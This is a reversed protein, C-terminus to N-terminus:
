SHATYRKDAEYKRLAKRNESSDMLRCLHHLPSYYSCRGSYNYEFKEIYEQIARLTITDDEHNMIPLQPFSPESGVSALSTETTEAMRQDCLADGGSTKTMKRIYSSCCNSNTAGTCCNDYEGFPVAFTCKTRSCLFSVLKTNFYECLYQFSLLMCTLKLETSKSISATGASFTLHSKKRNM